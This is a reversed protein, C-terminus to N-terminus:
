GDRKGWCKEGIELEGLDKRVDLPIQLFLHGLDLAVEYEYVGVRYWGSGQPAPKELPDIIEIGSHQQNNFYLEVKKRGKQIKKEM